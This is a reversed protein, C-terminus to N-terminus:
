LFARADKQAQTPEVRWTRGCYRCGYAQKKGARTYAFGIKRTENDDAFTFSAETELGLLFKDAVVTFQSGADSGDLRILGVANGNVDIQVGWQGKLGDVSAIVERVTATNDGVTTSVTDIRAALASTETARVIRETTVEARAGNAEAFLEDRVRQIQLQTDGLGEGLSALYEDVANQLNPVSGLGQDVATVLGLEFAAQDDLKYIPIAGDPVTLALGTIQITTEGSATVWASWDAPRPPTTVALVRAEYTIGSQIQSAWTYQGSEPDKVIVEM